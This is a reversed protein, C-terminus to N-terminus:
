RKEGQQCVLFANISLLILLTNLKVLSYRLQFSSSFQLLCTIVTDQLTMKTRLIGIFIETYSVMTSPVYMGIRKQLNTPPNHCWCWRSLHIYGHM